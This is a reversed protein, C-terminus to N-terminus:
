ILSMKGALNKLQKAVQSFGLAIFSFQYFYGVM